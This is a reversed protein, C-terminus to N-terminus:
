KNQQKDKFSKVIEEPSKGLNEINMKINSVYPHNPYRKLFDEYLAKAKPLDKLDNEVMYGEFFIAEPLRKFDPYQSILKDLFKEATKFDGINRSYQSAEFIYAPTLSDKPNKDIYTSLMKIFVPAKAKFSEGSPNALISDRMDKIDGPMEISSSAKKDSNKCAMLTMLSVTLILIFRMPNNKTLQLYLHIYLM